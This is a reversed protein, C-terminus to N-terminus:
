MAHKQSTLLYIQNEFHLRKLDTQTWERTKIFLKRIHTMMISQSYGTKVDENYDNM